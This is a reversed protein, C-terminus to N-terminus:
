RRPRGALRPGTSSATLPSQITNGSLADICRCNPRCSLSPARRGQSAIVPKICFLTAAARRRVTHGRNSPSDRSFRAAVPGRRGRQKGLTRNGADPGRSNREDVQRRACRRCGTWPAVSAFSTETRRTVLRRSRPGRPLATHDAPPFCSPGMGGKGGVAHPSRPAALAALAAQTAMTFQLAAAPPKRCCAHVRRRKAAAHSWGVSSGALPLPWVCGRQKTPERYNRRSRTSPQTTTPRRM